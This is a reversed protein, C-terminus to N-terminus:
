RMDEQCRQERSSWDSGTRRQWSIYYMTKKLYNRSLLHIRVVSRKLCNKGISKKGVGKPNYDQQFITDLKM